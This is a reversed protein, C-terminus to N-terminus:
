PGATEPAAPKVFVPIKGVDKFGAKFVDEEEPVGTRFGSLIGARYGAVIGACPDLCRNQLAVAKRFDRHHRDCALHYSFSAIDRGMFKSTFFELEGM